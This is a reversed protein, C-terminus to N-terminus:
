RSLSLTNKIKNKARDSAKSIEKSINRSDTTNLKIAASIFNATDFFNKDLSLMEASKRLIYEVVQESKESTLLKSLTGAKIGMLKTALFSIAELKNKNGCLAEIAYLASEKTICDDEIDHGDAIISWGYEDTEEIKQYLAYEREFIDCIKRKTMTVTLPVIADANVSLIYDLKSWFIHAACENAANEVSYNISNLKSSCSKCFLVTNKIFALGALYLDNYEPLHRNANEKTMGCDIASAFTNKLENEFFETRTM